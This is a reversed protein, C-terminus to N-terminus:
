GTNGAIGEEEWEGAGYMVEEKECEEEQGRLAGHLPASYRRPGMLKKIATPWQVLFALLWPVKTESEDKVSLLPSSISFGGNPETM